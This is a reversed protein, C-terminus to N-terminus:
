FYEQSDRSLSALRFRERKNLQIEQWRLGILSAVTLMYGPEEMQTFILGFLLVSLIM